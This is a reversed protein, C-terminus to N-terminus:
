TRGGRKTTPTKKILDMRVDHNIKKKWGEPFLRRRRGREDLNLKTTFRRIELRYIYKVRESCTAAGERYAFDVGSDLGVVIELLLSFTVLSLINYPESLAQDGFLELDGLTM